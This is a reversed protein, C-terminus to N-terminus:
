FVKSYIHQQTLVFFFILIEQEFDSSILTSFPFILTPNKNMRKAKPMSWKSFPIVLYPLFHLFGKNLQGVWPPLPLKSPFFDLVNQSRSFKNYSLRCLEFKFFTFCNMFGNYFAPLVCCFFGGFQASHATHM